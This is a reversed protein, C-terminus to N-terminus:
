ISAMSINIISIVACMIPAIVRFSDWFGVSEKNKFNKFNITAIYIWIILLVYELLM